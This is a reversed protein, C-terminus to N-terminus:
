QQQISKSYHKTHSVDQLACRVWIFGNECAYVSKLIIPVVLRFVETDYFAGGRSSFYNAIAGSM